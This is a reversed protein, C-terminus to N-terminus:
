SGAFSVVKGRQQAELAADIKARMQDYENEKKSNGSLIKTKGSKIMRVEELYQDYKESFLTAPRIYKQMKEDGSWEQQKLVIVDIMDNLEAKKNLRVQIIKLHGPNDIEYSHGTISNFQRLIEVADPSFMKEPKSKKQIESSSIKTENGLEIINENENEMHGPMHKASAEEHTTDDKNKLEGLANSRRSASFAQRKQMETALKENYYNGESDQKFKKSLVTWSAQDVGLVTKISELSLPGGHFQAMLLDIYCGKQHRTLVMTGGLWDGPYFLFAPDKAM